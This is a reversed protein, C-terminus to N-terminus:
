MEKIVDCATEWIEDDPASFGWSECFNAFADWNNDIFELASMMVDQEDRSLKSM